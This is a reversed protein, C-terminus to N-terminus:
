EGGLYRLASAIAEFFRDSFSLQPIVAAEIVELKPVPIFQPEKPAVQPCGIWTGHLVYYKVAKLEEPNMELFQKSLVETFAQRREPPLNMIWLAAGAKGFGIKENGAEMGFIEM